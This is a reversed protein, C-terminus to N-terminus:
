GDDDDDGDHGNGNGRGRAPSDIQGRIEGGPWRMTHVNVYTAGARMAQILEGMEGPALGRDAPGSGPAAGLVQSPTIVGRVTGGAPPCPAQGGGGCLFASVGGNTHRQAFHIHAAMADGGELAGYTLEYAINGNSLVQARFLGRGTTSVSPVENYGNLRAEFSNPSGAIAVSIAAMVVAGVGSIILLKRM